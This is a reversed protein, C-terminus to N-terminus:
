SFLYFLKQTELHRLSISPLKLLFVLQILYILFAIIGLNNAFVSIGFLELFKMLFRSFQLAENFIMTEKKSYMNCLPKKKGM